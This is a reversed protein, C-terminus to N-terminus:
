PLESSNNQSSIKEVEEFDSFDFSCDDSDISDLLPSSSVSKKIIVAEPFEQLLFELLTIHPPKESEPFSDQLGLMVKLIKPVLAYLAVEEAQLVQIGEKGSCILKKLLIYQEESLAQIMEHASSLIEEDFFSVKFEQDTKEKEASYIDLSFFCFVYLLSCPKM